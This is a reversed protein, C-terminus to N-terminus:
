DDQSHISQAFQDAASCHMHVRVLVITMPVHMWVNMFLLCVVRRMCM